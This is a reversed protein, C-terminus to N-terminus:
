KEGGRNCACRLPSACATPLPDAITVAPLNPDMMNQGSASNRLTASAAPKTSGGGREGVRADLSAPGWREM